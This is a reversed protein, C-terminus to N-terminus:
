ATSAQSLTRLLIDFVQQSSLERMCRWHGLPCRQPGHRDCPRCDLDTVGATASGEALPGFGFAPSTPGFISVTRTGMASALHQPASDNGVLAVAKGILAAAALITLQGSANLSRGPPLQAVITDGIERDARAGIVVVRYDEIILAALEPYFPWRKSGWASGPALVIFPESIGGGILIQQAAHHDDESPYLRPRIQSATPPDACDSMALSWLREAHHRDPSYSVRETYLTRGAATDFGVRHRIGAALALMASRISGQAMYAAYYLNETRRPLDGTPAPAGYRSTHRLKSATRVFGQTGSDVGRKDYVLTHRIAPNNALVHAGPLTTLVDVPGRKALEAILPTTLVVDGLFSTQVVLSAM